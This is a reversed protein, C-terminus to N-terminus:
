RQSHSFYYSISQPQAETLLYSHSLLHPQLPLCLWTRITMTFFKSNTRLKTFPSQDTKLLPFPMIWNVNKLSVSRGGGQTSLPSHVLPFCPSLSSPTAWSPLPSPPSFNDSQPDVKSAHTVPRGTPNQYLVWPFFLLCPNHHQKPWHHLSASLPLNIDFKLLFILM